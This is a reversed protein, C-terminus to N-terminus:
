VPAQCIWNKQKSTLWTSPPHFFRIRSAPLHTRFNKEYDSCFLHYLSTPLSPPCTSYFSLWSPNSPFVFNCYLLFLLSPDLKGSWSSMLSENIGNLPTRNPVFHTHFEQIIWTSIHLPFMNYTNPDWSLPKSCLPRHLPLFSLEKQTWWPPYHLFSSIGTSVVYCQCCHPSIQRKMDWSRRAEM